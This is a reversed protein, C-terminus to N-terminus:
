LNNNEEYDEMPKANPHEWAYRTSESLPLNLVAGTPPIPEMFWKNYLTELSGDKVQREISSNIVQKLNDDNLRLMCAIPEVSLVEDIFKYNEPNKSKAINAAIISGDMIFADARGSELLLFSDAHDKGNIENFDINMARGKKRLTVVSTTGTTTAITKGKLDALSNINSDKKVAIRVQEVYTTNAFDAQKARTRNNTTSGCEFDITGNQVLPIRNESTIPQYNIKVDRGVAKSIDDIIHEAMETHFGVYKGKGLAYALGSSERVGLNVVGTQKIKALTDDANAALTGTFAFLAATALALIKKM